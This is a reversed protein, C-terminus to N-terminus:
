SKKSSCIIVVGTLVCSYKKDTTDTDNKDKKIKAVIKGTMGLFHLQKSWLVSCMEIVLYNPLRLVKQTFFKTETLKCYRPTSLFNANFITIVFSEVM